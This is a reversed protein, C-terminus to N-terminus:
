DKPSVDSPTTPILDSDAMIPLTVGDDSVNIEESTIRLRIIKCLDKVKSRAMSWSIMLYSGLLIGVVVVVVFVTQVAAMKFDATFLSAIASFAISFLFISFNLQLDASTGKELAELESDKIEYLDFSGVLGRRIILPKSGELPQNSSM